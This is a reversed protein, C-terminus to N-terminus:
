TKDHTRRTSPKAQKNQIMFLLDRARRKDRLGYQRGGGPLRRSETDKLLRMFM